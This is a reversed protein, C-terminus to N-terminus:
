QSVKLLLKFTSPSTIRWIELVEKGSHAKEYDKEMMPCVNCKRIPVLFLAQGPNELQLGIAPM